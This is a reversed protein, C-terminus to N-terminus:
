HRCQEQSPMTRKSRRQSPMASVEIRRPSTNIITTTGRQPEKLLKMEIPIFQSNINHVYGRWDGSGTPIRSDTENVAITKFIKLCHEVRVNSSYMKNIIETNRQSIDPFISLRNGHAMTRFTDTGVNATNLETTKKDTISWGAIRMSKCATMTKTTWHPVARWKPLKM